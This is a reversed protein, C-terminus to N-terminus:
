ISLLFIYLIYICFYTSESFCKHSFVDNVLNPMISVKAQIARQQKSVIHAKYSAWCCVQCTGMLHWLVKGWLQQEWFTKSFNDFTKQLGCDHSTSFWKGVSFLIWNGIIFRVLLFPLETWNVETAWDHGVRWPGMSWLVVPRGAWWWSRSDVWVWRWQTLSAMWDDWGRDDGEGEAKLREWCWSRKLHTLQEYWTAM